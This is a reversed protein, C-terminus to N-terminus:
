EDPLVKRLRVMARSLLSKVTGPRCGLVAAIEAESLDEYFRLVVAKRQRDPLSALATRTLDIDADTSQARTAAGPGHRLERGRRRHHSRCANVVAQRLYARPTEVEAWRAFVRVFADQVLEEAQAPSGTLLLALRVMPVYADAYLREFSSPATGDIYPALARDTPEDVVM